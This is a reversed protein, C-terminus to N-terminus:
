ARKLLGRDAVIEADLTRYGVSDFVVTVQGHESETVTGAGWARHTVRGGVPFRVVEEVDETTGRDDNDCNGCPPTFVEGFYGLLFERRCDRREAYARMMEVRSREFEHRNHDAQAAADVAHALAAAGAVARVRGDQAVEVAGSDELDRLIATLRTRSISAEEVLEAPEVGGPAAGLLHAITEVAERRIGRGAFFHRLGLDEPRYFLRAQAPGGDRGARGIEQYYADLSESVEEHFVWRVNPKDVGMGFAVTAVVVRCDRDALFDDQVRDRQRAGMG